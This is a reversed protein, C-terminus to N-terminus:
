RVVVPDGVHVPGPRSVYADVGFAVERAGRVAALGRLVPLDRAGSVPDLDIVACRPVPGRVVVEADGLRVPRGAWEEETFPPLDGSDVLLTARFRASDVPAGLAGALHTVSSTTVLSVPEGYVVEGAPAAALVVERGLHASYAAAWGGAVREVVATRGWYDVRLLEGTRMPVGTVTADPLQVALVTGDWSARTRLLSPNEVTRLCRQAAVDVLCFARDGRPGTASLLVSERAQHRGGKVPTLGIRTVRM